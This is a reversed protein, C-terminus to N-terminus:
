PASYQISDLSLMRNPPYLSIEGDEEGLDVRGVGLDADKEVESDPPTLGRRRRM